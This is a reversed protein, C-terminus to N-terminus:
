IKFSNKTPKWQVKLSHNVKGRVGDTGFKLQSM